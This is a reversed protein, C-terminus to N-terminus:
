FNLVNNRIFDLAKAGEDELKIGPPTPKSRMDIGAYYDAREVIAVTNQLHTAASLLRTYLRHFLNLTETVCQINVDHNDNLIDKVVDSEGLTKANIGSIDTKEDGLKLVKKMRDSMFSISADRTDFMKKLAPMNARFEERTKTIVRNVYVRRKKM